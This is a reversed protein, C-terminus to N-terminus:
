SQAPEKKPNKLDSRLGRIEGVLPDIQPKPKERLGIKYSEELNNPDELYKILKAPDQDFKTKLTHPLTDFAYEADKVRQLMEQYDGIGVLDAYVGQQTNVHDIHGTKM